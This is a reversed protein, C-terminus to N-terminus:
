QKEIDMYCILTNLGEKEKEAIKKAEEIGVANDTFRWVVSNDEKKKILVHYKEM